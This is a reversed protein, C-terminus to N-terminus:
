KWRVSYYVWRSTPGQQHNQYLKTDWTLAYPIWIFSETVFISHELGNMDHRTYERLFGVEGFGQYWISVLTRAGSFCLM